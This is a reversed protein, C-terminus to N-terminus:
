SKRWSLTIKGCALSILSNPKSQNQEIHKNRGVWEGMGVTVPRHWLSGGGTMLWTPIKSDKIKGDLGKIGASSHARFMELQAPHSCM